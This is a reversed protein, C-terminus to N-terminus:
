RGAGAAPPFRGSAALLDIRAQRATDEAVLAATDADRARREADVVELDNTGGERYALLTMELAEHALKGADRAARLAEDAHQVVEFSVRLDSRAQRLLGDLQVQAEALLARRERALGYRAGGDYLPLSLVLQAQWGTEPTTLTAPHQVFPQVVATLLPLYDTYSDHVVQRSAEVRRRQARLDARQDVAEQLASAPAPLPPLPIEEQVEVPGEDGVLVGLAERSRSVGSLASALQSQDTALEQAARVVDLRNGSGADFRDKASALHEKATALAQENIAALRHQAMVALYSRATAVAVQRRTDELAFRAVDLQDGAHKWQTWRGPAFLPVTLNLNGALSTRAASVVASGPVRREADLRTLVGNATLTPLSPARAERLFGEARAIEEAAVLASPNRALARRVAEDLSVTEQARASFAFSLLFFSLCRLLM